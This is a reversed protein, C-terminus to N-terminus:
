RDNGPGFVWQYYFNTDNFDDFPPKFEKRATRANSLSYFGVIGTGDESPVTGWRALGTIPDREVRRLHRVVTKPFRPDRELDGIRKPYPGQGPPTAKAYSELALMLRQGRELLDDEAIRRQMTLGAQLATASLLGIVAVFILLGVYTYGRARVQQM